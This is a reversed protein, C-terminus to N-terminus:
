KNHRKVIENFIINQFSAVNVLTECNALAEIYGNIDYEGALEVILSNLQTTLHLLNNLQETTAVTALQSNSIGMTTDSNLTFNHKSPAFNVIEM